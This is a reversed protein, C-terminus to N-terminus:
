FDKSPVADVDLKYAKFTQNKENLLGLQLWDGLVIKFKERSYLLFNFTAIDAGDGKGHDTNNLIDDDNNAEEVNLTEKEGGLVGSQLIGWLVWHLNVLARSRIIDDYLSSTDDFNYGKLFIDIQDKTPYKLPNLLEPKSSHYDHMWESFHNAIDFTPPNPGSYEFDIVVIENEVKLLNGYQTDCHTFSLEKQLLKEDLYKRYDEIISTFSNFDEFQTAYKLVKPDIESIAQLWNDIRKWTISGEKKEEKTLPVFFHLERMRKSVKHSIVDERVDDKTLTVSNDLFEEFRGNNFCGFLKPGIKLNSLRALVQLEYDRDIISDVNPGYVRLLLSPLASNSKYTVQYIANTMAGAIKRIVLLAPELKQKYWKKIKLLGIIAVIEKAFAPEDLSNDLYYDVFRVDLIASLDNKITKSASSDQPLLGVELLDEGHLEKKEEAEEKKFLEDETILKSNSVIEVDSDQHSLSPKILDDSIDNDSQFISYRRLSVQSSSTKKYLKPQHIASTLNINSTSTSLTMIDSDTDTTSKKPLNSSM